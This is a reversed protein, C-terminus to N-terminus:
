SLNILYESMSITYKYTILLKSAFHLTQFLFALVLLLKLCGSFQSFPLPHQTPDSDKDIGYSGSVLTLCFCTM